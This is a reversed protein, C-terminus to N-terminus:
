RVGGTSRMFSKQELNVLEKQMNSKKVGNFFQTSM